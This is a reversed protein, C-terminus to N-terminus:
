TAAIHEARPLSRYGHSASKLLEYSFEIKLKHGGIM